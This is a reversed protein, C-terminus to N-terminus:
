PIEYRKNNDKVGCFIKKLYVIFYKKLLFIQDSLVNFDVFFIHLM